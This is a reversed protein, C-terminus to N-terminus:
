IVGTSKKGLVDVRKSLEALRKRAKRGVQSDEFAWPDILNKFQWEAEELRSVAVVARVWTRLGKIEGRFKRKTKKM